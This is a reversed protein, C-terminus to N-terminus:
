EGENFFVLPRVIVEYKRSVMNSVVYVSFLRELIYGGWRDAKTTIESKDLVKMVEYAIRYWENAFEVPALFINRSYLVTKTNLIEKSKLGTLSDFVSCALELSDIADGHCDKFQQWATVGWFTWNLPEGVVLKNSYMSLFSLQHKAFDYREYFNKNIVSGSLHPDLGLLCRYHMLGFTKIDEPLPFSKMFAPYESWVLLPHNLGDIEDIYNDFSESNGKEVRYIEKYPADLKQYSMNKHSAIAILSNEM